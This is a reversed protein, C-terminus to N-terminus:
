GGVVGAPHLHSRRTPSASARRRATAPLRAKRSRASWCTSRRLRAMSRACAGEAMRSRRDAGRFEKPLSCASIGGSRATARCAASATACILRHLRPRHLGVRGRCTRAAEAAGGADQAPRQSFQAAGARGSQQHRLFLARRRVAIEAYIETRVKGRTVGFFDARLVEEDTQHKRLSFEDPILSHMRYVATFEETIAYPASHHDAPSGPHGVAGAKERAATLAAM